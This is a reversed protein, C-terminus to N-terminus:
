SPFSTAGEKILAYGRLLASQMPTELLRAADGATRLYPPLARAVLRHGAATLRVYITRRDGQDRERVLCKQAVLQDLAETMASRSVGTHEALDAPTSPDPDLTFLVVLVAFKLDSLHFEALTRRLAAQLVASTDLQEFVVACRPADLGERQRAIALLTRAALSGSYKM